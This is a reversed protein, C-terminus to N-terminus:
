RPRDARHGQSSMGEARALADGPQRGATGEKSTPAKTFPRSNGEEKGSRSRTFRHGSDLSSLEHDGSSNIVVCVVKLWHASLGGPAAAARGSLMSVASPWRGPSRLPEPAAHPLPKPTGLAGPGTTPTGPPAAHPAARPAARPACRLAGRPARLRRRRALGQLHAGLPDVAARQPSNLLFPM